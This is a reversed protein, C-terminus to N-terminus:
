LNASGIGRKPRPPPTIKQQIGSVGDAGSPVFIQITHQLLEAGFSCELVDGMKNVYHCRIGRVEHAYIMMQAGLHYFHGGIPFREHLLAVPDPSVPKPDSRIGSLLTNFFERTNM